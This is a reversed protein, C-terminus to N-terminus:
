GEATRQDFNSITSDLILAKAGGLGYGRTMIQITKPPLPPSLNRICEEFDLHNGWMCADHVRGLSLTILKYAHM